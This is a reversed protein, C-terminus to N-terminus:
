LLGRLRLAIDSFREDVEWVLQKGVLRGPVREGSPPDARAVACPRGHLEVSVKETLGSGQLLLEFGGSSVPARLPQVSAVVPPAVVFHRGVTRQGGVSVAIMVEIAPRQNVVCEIHTHTFNIVECPSDDIRVTPRSPLNASGVGEALAVLRDGGFSHGSLGLHVNDAADQADEEDLWIM